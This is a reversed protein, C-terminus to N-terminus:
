DLATAPTPCELAMHGWGQCRFSQVSNPARMSTTGEHRANTGHSNQGQNRSIAVWTRHGNPTSHDLITQGLGNQGNHSSPCGPTGRDAHGRGHGRGRPSSPASAPNSGQGAKTLAAMLKGIQKGVETTQKGSNTAVVARARVKDQIEENKAKWREPPLWWSHTLPGQPATPIGSPIKSINTSGIFPATKSTNNSRYIWWGGPANCGLKTSPGTWRWPSPPSRRM